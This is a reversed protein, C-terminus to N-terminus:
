PGNQSMQEEGGDGGFSQETESGQVLVPELPRRDAAPRLGDLRDPDLRHVHRDHVRQEAAVVGPGVPDLPEALEKGGQREQHVGVERRGVRAHEQLEAPHADPLDDDVAELVGRAGQALRDQALQLLAGRLLHM